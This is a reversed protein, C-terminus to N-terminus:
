APETLLSIAPFILSSPGVIRTEALQMSIAHLKQAQTKNKKDHLAGLAAVSTQIEQPLAQQFYSNHIFPLRPACHQQFSLICENIISYSIGNCDQPCDTALFEDFSEGHMNENSYVHSDGSLTPLLDGANDFTYPTLLETNLGLEIVGYDVSFNTEHNNWSSPLDVVMNDLEALRNESSV